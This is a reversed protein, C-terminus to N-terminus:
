AVAAVCPNEVVKNMKPAFKDTIWLMIKKM